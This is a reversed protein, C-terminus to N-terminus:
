VQMRNFPPPMDHPQTGQYFGAQYQQNNAITRPVDRERQLDRENRKQWEQLDTVYINM